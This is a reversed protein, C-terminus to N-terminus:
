KLTIIDVRIENTEMDLRMCSPPALYPRTVSGPNLVLLSGIQRNDIIHTHGYIVIDVGLQVADDVLESTGSKVNYHHGHLLWIKRGGIDLFKELKEPEVKRFLGIGDCNGVVGYVQKGTFESLYESDPYFDGAHLWYEAEPLANVAKRVARMDGHSDSMIGIVM